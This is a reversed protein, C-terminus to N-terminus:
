KFSGSMMPHDYAKKLLANTLSILCQFTAEYAQQYGYSDKIGMAQNNIRLLELLLKDRDIM